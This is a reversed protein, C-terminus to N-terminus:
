PLLLKQKHGYVVDYFPHFSFRKGFDYFGSYLIKNSFGDDVVKAKGFGDDGVIVSM